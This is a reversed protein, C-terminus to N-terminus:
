LKVLFFMDTIESSPVYLVFSDFDAEVKSHELSTQAKPSGTELIFSFFVYHM